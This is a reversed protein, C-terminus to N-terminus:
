EGAVHGLVVRLVDLEALLDESQRELTCTLTSDLIQLGLLDAGQETLRIMRVRVTTPISTKEECEEVRTGAHLLNEVHPRAVKLQYSWELDTQAALSALLAGAGKPRLGGFRESRQKVFL